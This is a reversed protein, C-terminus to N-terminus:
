NTTSVRKYHYYIAQLQQSFVFFYNIVVKGRNIMATDCLYLVLNEEGLSNRPFFFIDCVELYLTKRM